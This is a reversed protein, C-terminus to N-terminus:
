WCVIGMLMGGAPAAKTGVAKGPPGEAQLWSHWATCHHATNAPPWWCRTAASPPARTEAGRLDEEESIGYSDPRGGVGVPSSLLPLSFLCLSYHPSLSLFFCISPSVSLSFSLWVFNSLSLCVSLFFSFSLCLSLPLTKNNNLCFVDEHYLM